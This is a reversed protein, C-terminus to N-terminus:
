LVRLLEKYEELLKRTKDITEQQQKKSSATIFLITDERVVYYVRKEQIKIEKFWHPGLSKGRHPNHRLSEKLTKLEKRQKHSLVKRAQKAFEHTQKVRYM